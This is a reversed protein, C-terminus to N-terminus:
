LWQVDFVHGCYPWDEWRTVLKKANRIVVFTRYRRRMTLATVCKPTGAIRNFFPNKSHSWTGSLVNGTDWGAAFRRITRQARCASCTCTNRCSWTTALGGIHHRNGLEFWHLIHKTTRLFPNKGLQAYQLSSSSLNTIDDCPLLIHLTNTFGRHTRNCQGESVAAFEASVYLRLFVAPVASEM